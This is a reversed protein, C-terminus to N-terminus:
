HHVPDLVPLLHRVRTDIDAAVRRFASYGSEEADGAAAPDAISWHRRRPQHRLEPLSERARDCLTIVHDFRRDSLSGLDRPRQGGLDIGYQEDLVRVAHPHLASRPRTGASTVSVRDGARHRLLAEAIPSRASNGTCVFVVTPSGGRRDTRGVAPAATPRLAPHLATGADALREACRDLDLHYYSDRGDFSSRRVTVLGADRLLRLHYSVLSQPEGLRAVLERVRQDGEALAALLQWRLPHAALRYVEPPQSATGSWEMVRRYMLYSQHVM